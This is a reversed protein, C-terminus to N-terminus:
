TANLLRMKWRYSVLESTDTALFIFGYFQQRVEKDRQPFPSPPLPAPSSSSPLCCIRYEWVVFNIAKHRNGELPTSSMEFSLPSSPPSPLSLSLSLSLNLPPPSLISLLLFYGRTEHGIKRARLKTGTM